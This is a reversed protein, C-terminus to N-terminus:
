DNSERANGFPRNVVESVRIRSPQQWGRYREGESSRDSMRHRRWEHYEDWSVAEGGPKVILHDGLNGAALPDNAASIRSTRLSAGPQVSGADATESANRSAEDACMVAPILGILVFLSLAAVKRM